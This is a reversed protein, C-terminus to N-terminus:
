NRLKKLSSRFTAQSTTGALAGITLPPLRDANVQRRTPGLIAALLRARNGHNPPRQRMVADDLLDASPKSTLSPPM